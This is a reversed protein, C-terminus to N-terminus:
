HKFLSFAVNCGEEDAPIKQIEDYLSSWEESDTGLKKIYAVIPNEARVGVNNQEFM